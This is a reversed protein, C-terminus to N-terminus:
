QVLQIFLEELRNAKNRMSAVEINLKSLAKFIDNLHMAKSFQVELSAVQYFRRM